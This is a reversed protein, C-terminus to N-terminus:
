PGPGTCPPIEAGEKTQCTNDTWTNGTAFPHHWLDLFSGTAENGSIVNGSAYYCGPEHKDEPCGMISDILIARWANDRIVNNLIYSDTNGMFHVGNYGDHISNNEVTLDTIGGPTHTDVYVGMENRDFENDAVRSDNTWQVLVGSITVGVYRGNIVSAITGVNGQGSDGSINVGVSANKVEVNDVTIESTASVIAEKHAVPLFEFYCDRVLVDQSQTIRVGMRFWDPDDEVLDRIYMDKVMAGSTYVIDMGVGFDKISGNKITVGELSMARVGIGGPHGSITHGNLDFYINSAGLEVGVSEHAGTSCVLDNALIADTTVTQYCSTVSTLPRTSFSWASTNGSEFDDNLVRPAAFTVDDIFASAAPGAVADGFNGFQIQDIINVASGDRFAIGTETATNGSNGDEWVTIDYTYTSPDIELTVGYWTDAAVDMVHNWGGSVSHTGIANGVTGGVGVWWAVQGDANNGGLVTLVEDTTSGVRFYYTLEAPGDIPPFNRGFGFGKGDFITRVVEVSKGSPGRYTTEDVLITGPTGNNWWLWTPPSGTTQSDFDEVILQADAFGVTLVLCVVVCVIKFGRV